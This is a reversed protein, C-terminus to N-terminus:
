AANPRSAYVYIMELALTAAALATIEAVDYAPAVEMIDMGTLRVGALGRVIQQAQYSSLGGIVPTGTGPAFSPDLCDIDFSMYCPGDDVVRRAEAIAAKVGHEHVWSARLWKFGWDDDNHTRLGIQVSRAPDIIGEQAAYYFMSGHDLRAHDDDHWTDSHADFHILGLPGFREAHAKLVPYTVFHDGGLTLVGTDQELIGRVHQTILDPIEDHRGYDFLCDGYDVVALRDFADFDWGDLRAWSYIASAARIARPGFRAGPRNSTALDFPVGTVALDVGELSRTYRRRAFSLAGSYTPESGTGRLDERRFAQDVPGEKIM